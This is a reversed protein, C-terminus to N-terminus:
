QQSDDGKFLDVAKIEYCFINRCYEGLYLAVGM